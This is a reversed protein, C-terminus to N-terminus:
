LVHKYCAQGVGPGNIFDDNPTWCQEERRREEKKLLLLCFIDVYVYKCRRKRLLVILFLHSCWDSDGGKREERLLRVCRRIMLNSFLSCSNRKLVRMRLQLSSRASFFFKKVKDDDLCGLSVLYHLFWALSVFNGDMFLMALWSRNKFKHEM